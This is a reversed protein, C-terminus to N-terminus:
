HRTKHLKDNSSNKSSIKIFKFVEKWPIVFLLIMTSLAFIVATSKSFPNNNLIAPLAVLVLWGSMYALEIILFTSMKKPLLLGIVSVVFLLTWLTSSFHFSPAYDYSGTIAFQPSSAVFSSSKLGIWGVVYINLAYVLRLLIM